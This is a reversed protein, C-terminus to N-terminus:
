KKGWDARKRRSSRQTSTRTLKTGFDGHAEAVVSASVNVVTGPHRLLVDGFIEKGELQNDTSKNPEAACRTKDVSQFIPVSRLFALRIWSMSMTAALDREPALCSHVITSSQEVAAEKGRIQLLMWNLAQLQQKEQLKKIHEECARRSGQDEKEPQGQM